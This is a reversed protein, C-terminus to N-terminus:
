QEERGQDGVAQHPEPWLNPVVRTGPADRMVPSWEEHEGHGSTRVLVFRLTFCSDDQSGVGEQLRLDSIVAQGHESLDLVRVADLAGHELLGHQSPLPRDCCLRPPTNEHVVAVSSKDLKVVGLNEIRSDVGEIQVRLQKIDEDCKSMKSNMNDGQKLQRLHSNLKSFGQMKDLLREVTDIKPASEDPSSLLITAHDNNARIAREMDSISRVANDAGGTAGYSSLKRGSKICWIEKASLGERKMRHSYDNGHQLDGNLVLVNMMGSFQALKLRLYEHSPDRFEIQNILLMENINPFKEFRPDTPHVVYIREQGMSNKYTQKPKDLLDLSIVQLTNTRRGTRPDKSNAAKLKTDSDVCIVTLLPKQRFSSLFRAVEDDEVTILQGLLGLCMEGYDRKYQTIENKNNETMQLVRSAPLSKLYDVHHQLKERLILTDKSELHQAQIDPPLASLRECDRSAARLQDVANGQDRELNQMITIMKTRRDQVVKIQDDIERREARLDQLQKQRHADNVFFFDLEAVIEPLPIPARPHAVFAVVKLDPRPVRICNRQRDLIQLRIEKAVM